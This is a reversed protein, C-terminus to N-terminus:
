SALQWWCALFSPLHLLSLPIYALYLFYLANRLLHQQKLLSILRVFPGWSTMVANVEYRVLREGKVLPQRSHSADIHSLWNKRPGQTGVFPPLSLGSFPTSLLGLGILELIPFTLFAQAWLM